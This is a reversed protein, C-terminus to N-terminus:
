SDAAATQEMIDNTKRHARARVSGGECELQEGPWIRWICLMLGAKQRGGEMRRGGERERGGGGGVGGGGGGGEGGREGGGGVGWGWVGRRVGSGVAGWVCVGDGMGVGGVM